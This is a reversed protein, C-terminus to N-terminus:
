QSSVVFTRPDDACCCGTSFPPSYQAGVLKIVGVMAVFAVAALFLAVGRHNVTLARGVAVCFLLIAMALSLEDVSVM